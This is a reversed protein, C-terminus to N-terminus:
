SRASISAVRNAKTDRVGTVVSKNITSLTANVTHQTTTAAASLYKKEVGIAGSVSAIDTVIEVAGTTQSDGLNLAVGDITTIAVTAATPIAINETTPTVSTVTSASTINLSALVQAGTVGGAGAVLEWRGRWVLFFRTTGVTGGPKATATPAVIPATFSTDVADNIIFQATASWLGASNQTWESTLVAPRVDYFLSTNPAAAAGPQKAGFLLNNVRELWELSVLVGDNM